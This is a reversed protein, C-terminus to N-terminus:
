AAKNLTRRPKARVIKGALMKAEGDPDPDKWHGMGIAERDESSMARLVANRKRVKELEAQHNAELKDLAEALFKFKYEDSEKSDVRIRVSSVEWAPQEYDREHLEPYAFVVGHCAGQKSFEFEQLDPVFEYNLESSRELNRKQMDCIRVILDFIRVKNRNLRAREASGRQKIEGSVRDRVGRKFAPPTESSEIYAMGRSKPSKPPPGSDMMSIKRKTM